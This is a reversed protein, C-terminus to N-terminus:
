VDGELPATEELYNDFEQETLDTFKTYDKLFVLNATGLPGNRQKGIIIEARNELGEAMAKEHTMYMEARYVFMVVDSVQETEGSDRLDSLIPRRDGGRTECARSLQSLAIVPVELEKAMAKLARSISAIERERTDARPNEILQLYDVIFMGIDHERKMRRATTRIDLIKLEANDNIFIPLESLKASEKTIRGWEDNTMKGTRIDRSNVMARNSLLRQVIASESMELSFIGVPCVPSANLAVDLALATKGMSPRGAIIIFEGNQFGSTLEDLKSFGTPVGVVTTERRHLRDLYDLTDTLAESLSRSKKKIQCEALKFIKREAGDVIERIEVGNEYCANITDTSDVILQRALFKDYVINAYHEIRASSAVTEALETLYFSGGVEDLTKCKKLEESLTILDIPTAQEGLVLMAEFIKQHANRYFHTPELSIKDISESDIIISGLVGMESEVSQPPIRNFLSKDAKNNEM